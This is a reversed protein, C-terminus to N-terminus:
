YQQQQQQQQRRRRRRRSSNPLCNMISLSSSRKVLGFFLFGTHPPSSFVTPVL